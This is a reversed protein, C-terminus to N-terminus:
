RSFFQVLQSWLRPNLDDLRADSGTLALLLSMGVTFGLTAVIIFTLLRTRMPNGTASQLAVWSCTVAALLLLPTFDLMFRTAVWFYLASPLFALLSGVLLVAAVGILPLVRGGDLSFSAGNRAGRQDRERRCVSDGVLLISAVIFPMVVLVGTADQVYHTDPPALGGPLTSISPLGRFLPRVFPFDTRFRPPALLYYVANAPFYRANFLLGTRDLLNLDIASLQYRLGPELMNGFRVCNYGGLVGLGVAMPLLLGLIGRYSPLGRENGDVARARILGWVTALVLGGIAVALAMRSALALAWMTGALVLRVAGVRRGEIAPLALCLGALLFAQGGTIAAEHIKPRNLNWLLPHVTAVALLTCWFLWGPMTPYFRGRLQVLILTSMLLVANAAIFVIHEDGVRQRFFMKWTAAVGAPAPGWYLYYKGEYYSADNLTPHVGERMSAPWPYDLSALEPPPEVLLATTGQLFLDALMNYYETTRPWATMHGASVYGIYLLAMGVSFIGLGLLTARSGAWKGKPPALGESPTLKLSGRKVAQRMDLSDVIRLSVILGLVGAGVALLGIRLPGWRGDPDTGLFGAVM